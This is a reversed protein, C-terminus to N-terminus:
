PFPHMEVSAGAQFGESEPPVLVYGDARALAQLPIAARALPVLGDTERAVPVLETLGVPSAIKRALRLPTGNAAADGGALRAVLHRGIVLFVALAADLRGPLLLVPCAGAGGFAASEGPALAMGHVDVVGHRALLQVSRDNRGEGTGGIAVIADADPRALSAELDNSRVVTAAGEIMRAVLGTIEDRGRHLAADTAVLRIRPLRVAIETLGALRLAAIDLARLRAGARRLPVAPTADAGAPLVGDGPAAAAVAQMSGGSATVADPALVADCAEPLPTGQDVWRARLPVPSYPGADSVADAAVAWGDRLAIARAPVASAARLDAAATMGADGMLARPAVPAARAAIRAIVEAVPLLRTVRQLQEPASM